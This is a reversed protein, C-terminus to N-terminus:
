VRVCVSVRLYKDYMYINKMGIRIRECVCLCVCLCVCVCVCVCMYIYIYINTMCIYKEYKYECM